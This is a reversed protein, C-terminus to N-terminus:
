FIWPKHVQTCHQNSFIHYCIYMVTLKEHIFLPQQYRNHYLLFPNDRDNMVKERRWLSKRENHNHRTIVSYVADFVM